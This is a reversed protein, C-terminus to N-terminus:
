FAKSIETALKARKREANRLERSGVLGAGAAAFGLGDEELGLLPRGLRSHHSEGGIGKAERQM